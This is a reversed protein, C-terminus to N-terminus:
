PAEGDMPTRHTFPRSRVLGFLLHRMDLGRDGFDRALARLTAEETVLERRRLLYRLWQTAMCNRAEQTRALQPMLDIADKFTLTGSPISLSGSADVPKGQDTTRYAGIADYNELAFGLPDILSHCAVACAQKDLSELRERTTAGPRPEPLPPIVIDSPIPIELCLLRRLIADGRSVPNSQDDYSKRTLFAARTFIGARQRADLSVPVLGMGAPAPLGYIKALGADVLSATGTLLTELKGDAQAGFFLSATFARSEDIMSLAVKPSFDIFTPDRTIDEFGEGELWHWHFEEIAGRARDDAFLRAAQQVLGETTNLRGDRAADLLTQDPMSGWFLYSLRSALEYQGFRLLRGERVPPNPGQERHYLFEPANVMAEVLDGIAQEFTDAVEPGRLTRYLALLKDSEKQALPRRYARLGFTTIFKGACAEQEGEATPIPNCPLLVPLKRAADAGIAEGSELFALADVSTTIFAGQPFGWDGLYDVAFRGRGKSGAGDIGLLDRITNTYELLTLRRLPAQGPVTDRDPLPTPDPVFTGPAQADPTGADGATTSGGTAAGGTGGTGSGGSGAGGENMGQGAGPPGACALGALAVAILRSPGLLRVM